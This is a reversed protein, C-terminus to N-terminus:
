KEENNQGDFYNITLIKYRVRNVEQKIHNEMIEKEMLLMELKQKLAELKALGIAYYLRTVDVVKDEERENDESGFAPVIVDKFRDLLDAREQQFENMLKIIGFENDLEQKDERNFTVVRDAYQRFRDSLTYLPSETIYSFDGFEPYKDEIRGDTKFLEGWIEKELHDFFYPNLDFQGPVTKPFYTVANFLSESRYIIKRMARIYNDKIKIIDEYIDIEDQFKGIIDELYEFIKETALFDHVPIFAEVRFVAALILLLM